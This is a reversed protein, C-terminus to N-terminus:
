FAINFKITIGKTEPLGNLISDIFKIEYGISMGMCEWIRVAYGCALVMDTGSTLNYSCYLGLYPGKLFRNHWYRFGAKFEPGSKKMGDHISGEESLNADHEEKM